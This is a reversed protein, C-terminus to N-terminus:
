DSRRNGIRMSGSVAGTGGTTLSIEPKDVADQM